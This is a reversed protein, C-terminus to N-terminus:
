RWYNNLTMYPNNTLASPSIPWTWAEQMFSNYSMPNFCYQPDTIKKTRVLDYYYHGEGMLEKCREWFIADGLQLDYNNREPYLGARARRRIKNLLETAKEADGLSNVAEAQLLVIDALRFVIQYYGVSRPTNEQGFAFNFFKFFLFSSAGDYMSPLNRFWVDIRGDVDGEPYIKYMYKSDYSMESKYRDQNLIFYPAHLVHGVFHRRFSQIQEFGSSSNPDTYNPNTPIEFLGEKSRGNFIESTRDIPLLEYAGVEKVGVNWLEDGLGDVNQYAEQQNGEEFGAVWMNLHMMLAIVAGRSARVGRNAPDEYTWPLDDKVVALEDLCRKAVEIHNTRPLPEQNFPNLYYPVDGFHRLLFFYTVCRMFVAEAQYKKVMALSILADNEAIQPAKDYLINASQIVKYAPVWDDMKNWRVHTVWFTNVLDGELRQTNVLERINGQSIMPIDMRNPYSNTRVVPANRLDGVLMTPREIGVGLRFLRYMELTFSEADNVSKWFNNGSLSDVPNVNLFKECGLSVIFMIALLSFQITRLRKM